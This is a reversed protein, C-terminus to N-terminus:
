CDECSFCGGLQKEQLFPFFVRLSPQLRKLKPRIGKFNKSMRKKGEIKFFGRSNKAAEIGTGRINQGLSANKKM